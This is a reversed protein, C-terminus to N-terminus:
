KLLLTMAELQFYLLTCFNFLWKGLRPHKGKYGKKADPQDRDMNNGDRQVRNNNNSHGASAPIKGTYFYIYHKIPYIHSSIVTTCILGNQLSECLLWIKCCSRLSM